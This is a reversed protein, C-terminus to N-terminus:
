DSNDRDFIFLPNNTLAASIDLDSAVHM